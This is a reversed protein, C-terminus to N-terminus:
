RNGDLPYGKVFTSLPSTLGYYQVQPYLCHVKM